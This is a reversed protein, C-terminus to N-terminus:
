EKAKKAENAEKTNSYHYKPESPIAEAKVPEYL